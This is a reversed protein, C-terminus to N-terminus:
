AAVSPPVPWCLISGVRCIIWKAENASIWSKKNLIEFYQALIETESLLTMKDTKSRNAEFALVQATEECDRWRAFVEPPTGGPPYFKGDYETAVFKPQAGPVTSSLAPRPFNLPVKAYDIEDNEMKEVRTKEPNIFADTALVLMREDVNKSSIENKM